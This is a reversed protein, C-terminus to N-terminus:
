EAFVEKIFKRLKQALVGDTVANLEAEAVTLTYKGEVWGAGDRTRHGYEVYSSYKVPNEVNLIYTNGQKKVEVANCWEKYDVKKGSAAEEHTEVTWGRVLTGSKSYEMTRNILKQLLRAALEKCCAQLFEEKQTANLRELDKAFKSLQKYDASM